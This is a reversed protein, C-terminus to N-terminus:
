EDLEKDVALLEEYVTEYYEKNIKIIERRKYRLKMYWTMGKARIIAQEYEPDGSGHIKWHCGNCLPILNDWNYRLVASVSKPIFHHMVQTQKSCIFCTKHKNTGIEQMLKDCKNRLTGLSSRKKM